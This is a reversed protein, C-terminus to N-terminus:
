TDHLIAVHEAPTMRSTTALNIVELWPIDQLDAGAIEVPSLGARKAGPMYRWFNRVIAFARVTKDASESERFTQMIFFKRDFFKILQDLLTSVKALGLLPFFLYALLMPLKDALSRCRKAVEPIHGFKERFRRLRQSYSARSEAELVHDHQEKIEELQEETITPDDRKIVPLARSMRGKAHLQCEQLVININVSEFAAKAPKWGDYTAGDIDYDPYFERVEARYSRFSAALHVEDTSPLYEIWWIIEKHSIFAVYTEEGNERVFKEDETVAQPPTLGLTLLIRPVPLLDSLWHVIHLIQEPNWAIQEGHAYELIKLTHRYSSTMILNVELIKSLGDVDWRQYRALFSPLVTFVAGCELCRIQWIPVEYREGRFNKPTRQRSQHRTYGRSCTCGEKHEVTAKAMAAAAICIYRAKDGVIELYQIFIGFYVIVTRNKRPGSPSPPTCNNM